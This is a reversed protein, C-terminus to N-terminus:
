KTKLKIIQCENIMKVECVRLYLDMNFNGGKEEKTSQKSWWRKIYALPITKRNKM